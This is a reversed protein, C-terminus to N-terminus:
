MITRMPSLKVQHLSAKNTEWAASREDRSVLTSREEEAIWTLYIKIEQFLIRRKLLEISAIM